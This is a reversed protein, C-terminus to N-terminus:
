KKAPDLQNKASQSTKVQFADNRLKKQRNASREGSIVYAFFSLKGRSVKQEIFFLLFRKNRYTKDAMYNRNDTVVAENACAISASLPSIHIQKTTVGTRFLTPLNKKKQKKKKLDTERSIEFVM